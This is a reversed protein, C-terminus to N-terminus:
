AALGTNIIIAALQQLTYGGFTDTSTIATGGNSVLAAGTIGTTPQVIPSKNWFAFKETTSTGIKTGTTTNFNIDGNAVVLAYNSTGNFSNVILAINSGGGSNIINASITSSGDSAIHLGTDSATPNYIYLRRTSVPADNISVRADIQVSDPTRLIDAGTRYLLVDGGLLLGAGSGSTSLALQGSSETYTGKTGFNILGDDRILLLSAGASDHAEFTSTGSTTGSGKVRLRPNTGSIAGSRTTGVGLTNNTDDWFLNANDQQVKTSAGIFLLSGVTGGVVDSSGITIDASLTTPDLNGLVGANNYLLYGNTGNLVTTTGVDLGGASSAKVINQKDIVKAM